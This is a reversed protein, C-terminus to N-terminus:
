AHDVGKIPIGQVCKASVELIMDRTVSMNEQNSSTKKIYKKILHRQQKSFIEVNRAVSDLSVTM